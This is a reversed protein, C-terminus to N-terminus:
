GTLRARLIFKTVLSAAIVHVGVWAVDLYLNYRITPWNSWERFFLFYIACIISLAITAALVITCFLGCAYLLSDIRSRRRKVLWIRDVESTVASFWTLVAVATGPMPHRPFHMRVAIYWVIGVIIWATSAIALQRRSVPM